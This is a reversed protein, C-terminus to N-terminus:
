ANRSKSEKLGLYARFMPHIQFRTINQLNMHPVQYSGIYSSGRRRVAKLGGVSYAKIFGIRWLAHIIYDPDQGSTWIKAEDALRLKAQSIEACIEWLEEYELSYTKGRFVDFLSLLGPYQFKYEAAVDKIRKDSYSVEANSIVDYNIPFNHGYQDKDGYKQIHEICESCFLIMERPRYLTRDVMYNFSKAGRYQIIESFVSNWAKEASEFKDSLGFQIRKSIMSLLTSEDWEVIEMVDRYKQADDFLAPIDDYIEQRLSMYVTLRETIENISMCAQFLGGVFAKADESADWGKDLEDILIVVKYIGCLEKISPILPALEEIKYLTGLDNAKFGIDIKGLKVKEIRKLYSLLFDLPNKQEMKHNDRLYVHIKEAADRKLTPKKRVLEKMTLVLLLYKWAATYAGIKAWSGEHEKSLVTSFMEYSYDEPKLEIVITGSKREKDAFVKFIASKGSGRNGLVIVKQRAQIRNFANTEYFYDLLGIGIDREAAPAGFSLNEFKM